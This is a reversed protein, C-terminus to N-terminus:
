IQTAVAWSPVKENGSINWALKTVDSLISSIPMDTEHEIRTIGGQVPCVVFAIADATSAVLAHYITKAGSAGHAFKAKVVLCTVTLKTGYVGILVRDCLQCTYFTWM